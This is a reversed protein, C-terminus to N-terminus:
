SAPFRNALEAGHLGLAIAYKRIFARIYFPEPLTELDGTEIAQLAYRQIFTRQHIDQLTLSQEQRIQQLYAGISQLSARQVARRQEVEMARARLKSSFGIAPRSMAPSAPHPQATITEPMPRSSVQGEPADYTRRAQEQANPGTPEGEKLQQDLRRRNMLGIAVLATVPVSAAAVQQAALSVAASAGAGFILAYESATSLKSDSKPKDM